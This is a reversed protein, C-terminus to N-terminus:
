TTDNAHEGAGNQSCVSIPASSSCLQSIFLLDCRLIRGRNNLWHRTFVVAEGTLLSHQFSCTLLASPGKGMCARWARCAEELGGGRNSCVSHVGVSRRSPFGGLLLGLYGSFVVEVPISLHVSFFSLCVSKSQGHTGRAFGYTHCSSSSKNGSVTFFVHLVFFL